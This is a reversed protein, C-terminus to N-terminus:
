AQSGSSGLVLAKLAPVQGELLEKKSLIRDSSCDAEDGAAASILALLTVTATQFDTLIKYASDDLKNKLRTVAVSIARGPAQLARSHVQIYLLSVVKPLLSVPDTEASVQSTLDKGELAEVVALARKSQSEPLSKAIATREGPSLSISESNQSDEVQTWNKLKNHLDLNHFLMDAISTAVTRLLHRHLTVSTSQDDEFLDLAKEYLQMNLFSEDLKRQLNDLLVKMKEVNETFLAKRREKLYNALMPRLYDALYKLITQPDDVGQEEFDPLLAELKQMLWEDSPVNEEQAKISDKKAVKRLDAVQSSSTDKGKKQNKKSKTPIYDENESDGEASVTRAGSSKGKKKKSGKETGRKKNGSETVTEVPESSKSLDKGAKAEKVMHSDDSLIITSSGSHSLTELEKEVRDYVDKVFSSSFLYSDGVILAKNAKLASQVSPSLSLIKSADQAGFSTPLLSLSDLWSGREIADEIAADLMEIMSPHVFATVLPIGEPFRCTSFLSPFELNICLTM